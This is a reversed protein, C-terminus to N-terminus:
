NYSGASGFSQGLNTSYSRGIPRNMGIPASFKRSTKRRLSGSVQRTVQRHIADDSTYGEEYAESLGTSSITNTRSILPGVAGYGEEQQEEQAVLRASEEDPVADTPIDGEDDSDDVVEDDGGFGEGEILWFAPIAAVISIASLIWWPMVIYGKQVGLTFVSGGTIPGIARGLAGCSTALGNLTGLIRLSTASNTLLITSSPFAFTTCFSKVLMLASIVIQQSTQDPLLASLPTILYVCPMICACARLCRLVGYKRAVPPFIFFQVLMGSVGYLTFIFGIQRSNLGFGGSFKFPPRFDPNRSSHDQRPHHMFVPILQDFTISHLALLTYV